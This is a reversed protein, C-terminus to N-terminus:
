IELDSEDKVEVTIKDDPSVSKHNIIIEFLKKVGAKWCLLMGLVAGLAGQAIEYPIKLIAAEPTGYIFAKGITYGVVMIVAGISVGIGSALVPKKKLVYHSFVSIVLAQLGHTVLSVFMPAPYFFMDGLFSGIGGVCFASIPDLIIAALSIIVDCLYLHGGPVPISFISMSLVINMAMFIATTCIRVTADRKSINKTM